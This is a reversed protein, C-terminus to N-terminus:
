DCIYGFMFGFLSERNATTADMAQVLARSTAAAFIEGIPATDTSAAGECDSVTPAAELVGEPGAGVVTAEGCGIVGASSEAIFPSTGM